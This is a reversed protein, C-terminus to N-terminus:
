TNKCDCGQSIICTLTWAFYVIRSKQSLNEWFISKPKSNWFVLTPIFILSFLWSQSKRGLNLWFHFKPQFNLFDIGSYSDADKLYETHWNEPLFKWFVLRMIAVLMRSKGQTGIKLCLLCSQSKRCLNAWFHIKLDSNQFDIDLNSIVVALVSM